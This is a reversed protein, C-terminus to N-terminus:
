PRGRLIALSEVEIGSVTRKGESRILDGVEVRRVLDYLTLTQESPPPSTHLSPFLLRETGGSPLTVTITVGGDSPVANQVEVVDGTVVVTTGPAPGVPGDNGRGCGSLVLVVALPLALLPTRWVRNM